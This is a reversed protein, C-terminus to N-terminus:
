SLSCTMIVSTYPIHFYSEDIITHVKSFAKFALNEYEQKSRIYEGRDKKLFFRAIKSQNNTYVGDFSVFKGNEKLAKKAIELLNYCQNDDLHHLVGASIVIDYKNTVKFDIKDISGCIFHGKNGYKKKAQYIYNQDIDIGTYDVDPLFDLIDGPGCGIDLIKQGKIAKVNNKVFLKRAKYGGVIKQYTTYIIPNNLIKRPDFRISM